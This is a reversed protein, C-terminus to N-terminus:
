PGDEQLEIKGRYGLKKAKVAYERALELQGNKHYAMSLWAHGFSLNPDMKISEELQAIGKAAQGIGALFNGYQAHTIAHQPYLTLAREYYKIPLNTKNLAQTVISALMLAKPHNVLRLLTYEIETLAVEFWFKQADPNRMAKNIDPLILRVHGREVLDILNAVFPEQPAAYYDHYWTGDGGPAHDVLFLNKTAQNSPLREENMLEGSYCCSLSPTIAIFMVITLQLLIQRVGLMCGTTLGSIEAYRKSFKGNGCETM